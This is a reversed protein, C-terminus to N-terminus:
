WSNPVVTSPPGSSFMRSYYSRSDHRIDALRSSGAYVNAASDPLSVVLYRVGPDPVIHCNFCHPEKAPLEPPSPDVAAGLNTTGAGVLPSMTHCGDCGAAEWRQSAMSPTGLILSLAVVARALRFTKM